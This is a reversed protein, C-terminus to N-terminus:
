EGVLPGPGGGSGVPGIPTKTNAGITAGYMNM